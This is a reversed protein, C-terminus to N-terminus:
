HMRQLTKGSVIRAPIISIGKIKLRFETEEAVGLLCGFPLFSNVFPYSKNRTNVYVPFMVCIHWAAFFECNIRCPRQERMQAVLHFTRACTSPVSYYAPFFDRSSLEQSVLIIDRSSTDRRTIRQMASLVVTAVVTAHIERWHVRLLIVRECLASYQIIVKSVFLLLLPFPRSSSAFAKAIYCLTTYSLLIRLCGALLRTNVFNHEFRKFQKSRLPRAVLLYKYQFNGRSFNGLQM